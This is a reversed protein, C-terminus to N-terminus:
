GRRYRGCAFGIMCGVVGAVAAAASVAVWPHRKVQFTATDAGDQVARRARFAARSGSDFQEKVAEAISKVETVIAM